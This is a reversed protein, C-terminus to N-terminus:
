AWWVATADGMSRDFSSSRRWQGVQPRAPKPSPSQRRPRTSSSRSVLANHTADYVADRWRLKGIYVPKLIHLVGSIWRKGSCTRHGPRKVEPLHHVRRRPRVCLAPLDESSSHKTRRCSSDQQPDARVTRCSVVSGSGSRAKRWGSRRGSSSPRTEFEAFVGLMQLMMKGAANATDSLETISLVVGYKALEDVM